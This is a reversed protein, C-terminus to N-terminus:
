EEAEFLLEALEQALYRKYRKRQGDEVLIGFRMLRDVAVKATMYSVSM